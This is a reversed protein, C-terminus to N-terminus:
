DGSSTSSPGVQRSDIAMEPFAKLTFTLWFRLDSDSNLPRLQTVSLSAIWSHLDRDIAYSQEYLSGNSPDLRHFSRFAWDENLTWAFGLGLQNNVTRFYDHSLTVKWDKQHFVTASATSERIQNDDYNYRGRWGLSLWRLPATRFETFLDSFTKEGALKTARIDQYLVLEALDWTTGDRKTQLRQRIEPRMVTQRDISDIGTYQPFDIPILDKNIGFSNRAVDFQALESPRHTPNTVYSFNIAPEIVHRLGDIEWEKDRVDKWTRSAKFSMEVGANGVGRVVSPSGSIASQDYFTVRGGVRPTVNLWNFYQKPYLFQHFTDVRNAHYDRLNSDKAYERSLNAYSSEGEYFIPGGMLSQRKFDMRLEPLRETTTYFNNLQLRTMASLIMNPSWKTVEAFNDPQPDKRFENEYFDQLFNPDSFKNAKIKSYIQDTLEARQSVRAQYRQPSIIQQTTGQSGVVDVPGSKKVKDDYAYYTRIKGTVNPSFATSKEPDFPKGGARYRLDVGGAYGREGRYDFRFTPRLDESVRTTYSNLVFFGWGSRSGAQVQTGTNFGDLEDDDLPYVFYPFYFVPVPGVFLVLNHFAIRNDPYLIITGAKFRWGPRDYDSTTFYSDKLLYRSKDASELSKAQLFMGIGLQSRSLGTKMAGTEFNYQLTDSAWEKTGKRLRVHGAARAERTQTNVFAEDAFLKAGKYTVVVHDRLVAEGTGKDFDMREASIQIAGDGGAADPTAEGGAVVSEQGGAQSSLGLGFILFCVWLRLILNQVLNSM